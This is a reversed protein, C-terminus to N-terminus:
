DRDTIFYHQLSDGVIMAITEIGYGALWWNQTNETWPPNNCHSITHALATLATASFGATSVAYSAKYASKDNVKALESRRYEEEDRNMEDVSMGGTVVNVLQFFGGIFGFIGAPALMGKLSEKSFGAAGFGLAVSLGISAVLASNRAPQGEDDWPHSTGVNIPSLERRFNQNDKALIGQSCLFLPLLLLLGANFKM